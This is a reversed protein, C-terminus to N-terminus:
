GPAGSVIVREDDVTVQIAPEFNQNPIAQRMRVADFANQTNERLLALPSQYIQDALLELMRSLELKFAIKKETSSM